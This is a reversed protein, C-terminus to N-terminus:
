NQSKEQSGKKGKKIINLVILGFLIGVGGFIIAQYDIYVSTFKIDIKEGPKMYYRWTLTSKKAETNEKVEHANHEILKGPVTITYTMPVPKKSDTTNLGKSLSFRAEISYVKLFLLDVFLPKFIADDNIFDGPYPLTWKDKLIQEAILYFKEKDTGTRVTYGSDRVSKVLEEVVNPAYIVVAIPMFLKFTIKQTGDPKIEMRYEVEDVCATM